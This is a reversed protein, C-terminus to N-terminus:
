SFVALSGSGSGAEKNSKLEVDHNSWLIVEVQQREAERRSEPSNARGGGGGTM